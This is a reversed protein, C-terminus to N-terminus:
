DKLNRTKNYERRVNTISSVKVEKTIWERENEINDIMEESSFKHM